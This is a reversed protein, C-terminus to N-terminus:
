DVKGICLDTVSRNHRLASCLAAYGDPSTKSGATTHITLTQVAGSVKVVEALAKLGKDDADFATAGSFYLVRQMVQPAFSAQDYSSIACM